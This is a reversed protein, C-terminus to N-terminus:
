VLASRARTAKAAACGASKSRSDRKEGPQATSAACSASLVCDEILKLYPLRAHVAAADRARLASHLGMRGEEREGRGEGREVRGEGRERKGERREGREGGGM